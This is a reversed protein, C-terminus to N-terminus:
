PMASAASAPQQRGAPGWRWAPRRGGTPLRPITMALVMPLWFWRDVLEPAQMAYVLVLGVSVALIDRVPDRGGGVGVVRRLAAVIALAGGVLWLIGGEYWFLLIVNHTTYGTAVPNAGPAPVVGLFPDDYTVASAQDLGHGWIPSREIGAWAADWTAQRTSVTNSGSGATTTAHLRAFLNLKGAHSGLLALGLLYAVLVGAVIGAVTRARVRRRVVLVACGALSCMMGSVSSSLVLALAMVLLCAPRHWWRGRGSWLMLGLVMVVALADTVGLLNPQTGLGIARGGLPAHRVVAVASSVTCGLIYATMAAVRRETTDLTSRTVWQWVFFVYVANGVVQLTGSASDAVFASTIGGLLMLFSGFTWGDLVPRRVAPRHLSVALVVAALAFVADSVTLNHTVRVALMPLMAMGLYVLRRSLDALADRRQWAGPGPVDGALARPPGTIEATSM